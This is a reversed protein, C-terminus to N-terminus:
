NKKINTSNIESELVPNSSTGLSYVGDTLYISAKYQCTGNVESAEVIVYSSNRDYNGGFPSIKGGNALEPLTGKISKLSEDDCSITKNILADQRAQMAFGIAADKFISAKTRDLYDNVTNFALVFSIIYIALVIISLILSPISLKAKKKLMIISGILSILSLVIGIIVIIGNGFLCLASVIALILFIICSQEKSPAVNLNNNNVQQSNVPIQSQNNQNVNQENVFYTNSNISQNTNSNYNTSDNIGTNGTQSFTSNNNLNKINNSVTAMDDQASNNINDKGIISNNITTSQNSSSDNNSNNTNNLNNQFPNLLSADIIEKDTNNSTSNNLNDNNM